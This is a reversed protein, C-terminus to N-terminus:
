VCGVTLEGAAAEYFPTSASTAMDPDPGAVFLGLQPERGAVLGQVFASGPHAM